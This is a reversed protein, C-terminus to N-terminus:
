YYHTKVDEQFTCPSPAGLSPSPWPQAQQCPTRATGMDTAGMSRTCCSSGPIVGACCVHLGAGHSEPAATHPTGAHWWGQQGVVVVQFRM